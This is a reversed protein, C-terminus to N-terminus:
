EAVLDTARFFQTAIRYEADLGNAFQYNKTDSPLFLSAEDHVKILYAEALISGEKTHDTSTESVLAQASRAQQICAKTACAQATHCRVGGPLFAKSSETKWTGVITTVKTQIWCRLSYTRCHEPTQQDMDPSTPGGSHIVAQRRGGIM